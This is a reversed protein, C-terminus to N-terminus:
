YDWRVWPMWQTLERAAPALRQRVSEPWVFNHGQIPAQIMPNISGLSALAIVPIDTRGDTADGGREIGRQSLMRISVITFLLVPRRM